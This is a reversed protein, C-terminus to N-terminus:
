IEAGRCTFWQSFNRGRHNKIRWSLGLSIQGDPPHEDKPPNKQRTNANQGQHTHIRLTNSSSIGSSQTLPHHPPNILRLDKFM